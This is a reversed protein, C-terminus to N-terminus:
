SRPQITNEDLYKQVEDLRYRCLRGIKVYPLGKGQMRAIRLTQTSCGLLEAVQVDNLLTISSNM